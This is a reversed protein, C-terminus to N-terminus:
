AEILVAWAFTCFHIVHKFFDSLPFCAHSFTHTSELKLGRLNFVKMFHPVYCNEMGKNKKEVHQIEEEEKKKQNEEWAENM